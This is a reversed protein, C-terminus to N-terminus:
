VGKQYLGGGLGALAWLVVDARCLVCGLALGGLRLVSMRRLMTRRLRRRACKLRGSSFSLHVWPHTHPDTLTLGWASSLLCSLRGLLRPQSVEESM